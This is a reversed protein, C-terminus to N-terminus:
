RAEGGSNKLQTGVKALLQTGADKLVDSEEELLALMTDVSDALLHPFHSAIAQLM